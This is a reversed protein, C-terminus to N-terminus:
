DTRALCERCAHRSMDDAGQRSRRVASGFAEGGWSCRLAEDPEDGRVEDTVQAALHDGGAVQEAPEPAADAPRGRVRRDVREAHNGGVVGVAREAVQLHTGHELGLDVDASVGRQVVVQAVEMVLRAGAPGAAGAPRQDRGQLCELLDGSEAQLGGELM